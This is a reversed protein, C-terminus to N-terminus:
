PLNPLYELVFGLAASLGTPVPRRGQVMFRVRGTFTLYGYWDWLRGAGNRRAGTRSLNISQASNVRPRALSPWLNRSARL